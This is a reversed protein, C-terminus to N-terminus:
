IDAGGSAIAQTVAQVSLAVSEQSHQALDKVAVEGAELEREGLVLAYKAGARDAGKMSGKLGRQGYSMDASVGAARLEDILKSMKVRAKDGIAIGFVDM